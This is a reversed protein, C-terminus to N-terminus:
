IQDNNDNDPARALYRAPRLIEGQSPTTMTMDRTMMWGPIVSVLRQWGQGQDAGPASSMESM